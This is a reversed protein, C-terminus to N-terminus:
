QNPQSNPQMGQMPQTQAPASGGGVPAVAPQPQAQAVSLELPSISGALNLIKNFVIKFNPDQMANPNQALTQLITTLTTLAGQVDRNEGTVDIDLKWELDKFLEKWTKSTIDSPSIFRQNGTLNGKIDQTAQATDQAEQNQDYLHGSLIASIKKQNIRRNVENPLYMSDIQKIQYDELVMSLEKTDNLQKKFFPLIFNTMMDVIALGKNQTMLEFLSHSENLEAQVQRWATGSPASQGSMAESIGNIQLSVNEWDSKFSQMATINPINNIMTLPQNEKHTLIQGNEINTLVNQGLFSPDSTQFLIKSALDLQDKIQKETHNIMWQAEFLNKVAGGAYTQGDKKILHTIMYPDQIEKGSFLTYDDYDGAKKAAQFTIVHMQQVFIDDDEEAPEKGQSQKLISLPLEGHVEYILIYDSKSDKSQGDLTKRTTTSDLLEDVLDQNYGTKKKLQAPTLWLKEVKVNNEFDVQDVLINNWDIVQCNLEGDKEVFKTIASGHTALTLGWDNLFKGFAIKKIWEQLKLTALFAPIVEKLGEARVKINKSDLDTARYWINRAAMVINFFPKDRGMYDKEGSIHRSNIYAETKDIDERMKFTVYKSSTTSGNLDASEMERVIEHVSRVEM